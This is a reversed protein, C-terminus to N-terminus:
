LRKRSEKLLYDHSASYAGIFGFLFMTVERNAIWQAYEAAISLFYSWCLTDEGSMRKLLFSLFDGSAFFNQFIEM